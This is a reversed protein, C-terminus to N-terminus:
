GKLNIYISYKLFRVISLTFKINGYELKYDRM